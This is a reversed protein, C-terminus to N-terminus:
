GSWVPYTAPSGCFGAALEYPFRRRIPEAQEAMYVTDYGGEGVKEALKYRGTRDGHKETM